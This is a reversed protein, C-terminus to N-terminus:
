MGAASEKNDRAPAGCWMPAGMAPLLGWLFWSLNGHAVQFDSRAQAQGKAKHQQDGGGDGGGTDPSQCYELLGATANGSDFHFAVGQRLLPLRGDVQVPHPRRRRELGRIRAVDLRERRVHGGRGLPGALRLLLQLRQHVVRGFLRQHLAHRHGALGIHIRAGLQQVALLCPFVHKRQHVAVELGQGGSVQLRQGIHRVVRM